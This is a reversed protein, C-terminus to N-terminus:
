GAGRRRENCGQSEVMFKLEKKATLYKAIMQALLRDEKCPAQSRRTARNVAFVIDPRKCRALTNFHGGVASIVACDKKKALRKWQRCCRLKKKEM